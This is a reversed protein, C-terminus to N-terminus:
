MYEYIIELIIEQLDDVEELEKLDSKIKVNLKEMRFFKLVHIVGPSTREHEYYKISIALCALIEFFKGYQLCKKGGEEGSGFDFLEELTKNELMCNKEWDSPKVRHQLDYLFVTRFFTDDTLEYEDCIKKIKCILNERLKDDNPNNAKVMDSLGHRFETDTQVLIICNVYRLYKYSIKM